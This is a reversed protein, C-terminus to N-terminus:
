VFKLHNSASPASNQRPCFGEAREARGDTMTMVIGRAALPQPTFVDAMPSSLIYTKSYGLPIKDLFSSKHVKHKMFEKCVYDSSIIDDLVKIDNHDHTPKISEYNDKISLFPVPRLTSINSACQANVLRMVHTYCMHVM